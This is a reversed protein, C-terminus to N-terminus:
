GGGALQGAGDGAAQVAEGREESNVLVIRVPPDSQHIRLVEPRCLAGGACAAREGRRPMMAGDARTRQVLFRDVAHRTRPPRDSLRCRKEPLRRLGAAMQSDRRCPRRSPQRLGPRITAAEEEDWGARKSAGLVRVAARGAVSGLDQGSWSPEVCRARACRRCGRGRACLPLRRAQACRGACRRGAPRRIQDLWGPVLVSWRRSSMKTPGM